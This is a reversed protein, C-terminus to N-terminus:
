PAYAVNDAVFSMVETVKLILALDAIAISTEVDVSPEEQVTTLDPTEKVVDKASWVILKSGAVLYM